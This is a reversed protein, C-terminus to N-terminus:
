TGTQAPHLVVLGKVVVPVATDLNTGRGVFLHGTVPMELVLGFNILIM